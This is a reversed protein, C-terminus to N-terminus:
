KERWRLKWLGLAMTVVAFGSLVALESWVDTRGSFSKMIGDAAYRVPSVQGVIRILLPAREISFFVPSVMVLVVGLLNAMIGGAEASPAYSGIFLTLGALSLVAPVIILFFAWTLELDVGSVVGLSLLLGVTLGSILSAFAIVGVAYSVKSMPMTVLLKLRHQFRDQIMQTALMNATMLTVGFVIAGAMVRRVAEPDEPALSRAWYFTGMPFVLAGMLFWPWGRKMMFFKLELVSWVDVFFKGRRSVARPTATVDIRGGAQTRM